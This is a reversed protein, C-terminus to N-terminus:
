AGFVRRAVSDKSAVLELGGPPRASYGAVVTDPLGAKIAQTPTIVSPKSVEVGLMQGLAIVEEVPKSWALRGVTSDLAFGPVSGGAKIQAAAMEELGMKRAELRALYHNILTLETGLAANTLELPTSGSAYDMGKFGTQQLAECHGRGDCYDCQDNPTCKADVRQWARDAAARLINFQARLDSAKVRWERIPGDRHYNRPQVIRFTFTFFSDDNTVGLEDLISAGNVILQWNEFVDVFEHGFKYDWVTINGSDHHDADPTGGCASHIMPCGRTKEVHLKGGGAAVKLVDAAYMEAGDLMEETVEIGNPAIAGLAPAGCLLTESAVWHAATGEMSKPTDGSPYLACLNVSGACAVWRAAASASLPFHFLESM